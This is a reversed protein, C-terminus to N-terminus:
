GYKGGGGGECVIEVEPQAQNAVVRVEECNGAGQDMMDNGDGLAGEFEDRSGAGLANM